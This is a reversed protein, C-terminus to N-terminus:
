VYVRWTGQKLRKSSQPPEHKTDSGECDNNETPVSLLFMYKWTKKSYSCPGLANESIIANQGPVKKPNQIHAPVLSFFVLFYYGKKIEKTVYGRHESSLVRTHSCVYVYMCVYMCVYM